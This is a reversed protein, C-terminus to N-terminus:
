ERELRRWARYLEVFDGLSMTEARRNADLGLAGVLADATERGLGSALSNRLTKRRRAFALRVLRRFGEMESAELPPEKLELGVFGASVKPPPRFSGARVTGLYRAEAQARTLVTLSGYASEGPRAVLREAVEKQVMFAARPVVEPHALLAEIIPTAVNFPLNGAVLTPAPLRRYDIALADAVVIRLSPAAFRRRLAFAWEPDVECAVVRAGARLLEATLAGGGPGIELVREGGARLFDLLPRCLAGDTLHHQGYRKKLSPSSMM